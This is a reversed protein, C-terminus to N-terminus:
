KPPDVMKMPIMPTSIPPLGMRVLQSLWSCHGTIKTQWWFDGRYGGLQEDTPAKYRVPIVATKPFDRDPASVSYALQRGVASRSRPYRFLIEKGEPDRYFTREVEGPCDRFRTVYFLASVDGAPHVTEQTEFGTFIHLPKRDLLLLAIAVWVLTVIVLILVTRRM